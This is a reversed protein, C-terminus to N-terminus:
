SRGGTRMADFLGHLLKSSQLDTLEALLALVQRSRTDDYIAVVWSRRELHFMQRSPGGKQCWEALIDPSHLLVSRLVSTATVLEPPPSASIIRESSLFGRPVRVGDVYKYPVALQAMPVLQASLGVIYEAVEVPSVQYKRAVELLTHSQLDDMFPALPMLMALRIGDARDEAHTVQWRLHANAPTRFRYALAPLACFGHHDLWDLHHGLEHAVVERRRRKSLGDRLLITPPTPWDDNLRPPLYVGDVPAGRRAQLAMAGDGAQLAMDVQSQPVTVLDVGLQNAFSDLDVPILRTAGTSECVRSVIKQFSGDADFRRQKADM